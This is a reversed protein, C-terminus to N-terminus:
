EDRHNRERRRCVTQTAKASAELKRRAAHPLLFVNLLSELHPKLSEPSDAIAVKRVFAVDTASLECLRYFYNEAAVNRVSTRLIKGDRLCYVLDDEAWAKLYFRPVYHHLKKGSAM